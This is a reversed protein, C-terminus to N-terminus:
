YNLQVRKFNDRSGQQLFYNYFFNFNDHELNINEKIMGKFLTYSIVEQFSGILRKLPSTQGYHILNPQGEINALRATANIADYYTGLKDVLGLRRAQAGTYIRGDALDKVEDRSLNRGEVVVDVFRQYVDNIMKQIINREKKSLERSPSGIDKYPGSTFTVPKIGVKNYLEKLNTFKMIVGISGTITNGNAYIQDAATSVYYGGSAAIDGMSVVIPRGTAKFKKLEKYIADSAASSGGPTNVRLLIGKVMENNKAQNIYQMIRYSNAQADSLVGGSSGAAIPGSINIVAISEKFLENERFNNAIAYIIGGLFLGGLLIVILFFLALYKIDVKM